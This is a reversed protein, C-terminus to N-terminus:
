NRIPYASLEGVPCNGLHCNGSSLDGVSMEGVFVEVASVEGTSSVEGSVEGSGWLLCKGSRVIGWGSVEGISVEGVLCKRVLVNGSQVNGQGSIERAM